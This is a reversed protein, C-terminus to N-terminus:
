ARWETYAKLAKKVEQKVQRITSGTMPHITGRMFSGTCTGFNPGIWFRYRRTKAGIVPKIRWFLRPYEDKRIHRVEEAFDYIYGGDQCELLFLARTPDIEKIVAYESDYQVVDGKKFTHDVSAAVIKLCEPCNVDEDVETFSNEGEYTSDLCVCVTVDDTEDPDTEDSAAPWEFHIAGHKDLLHRM